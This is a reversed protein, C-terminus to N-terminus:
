HLLNSVNNHGGKPCGPLSAIKVEKRNTPVKPKNLVHTYIM